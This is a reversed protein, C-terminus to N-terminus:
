YQTNNKGYGSAALKHEEGDSYLPNKFEAQKEPAIDDEMNGSMYLPNDGVTVINIPQAAFVCM